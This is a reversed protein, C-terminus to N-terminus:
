RLPGHLPQPGSPSLGDSSLHSSFSIRQLISRIKTRLRAFSKRLIQKLGM